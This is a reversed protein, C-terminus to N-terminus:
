RSLLITVNNKKDEIPANHINYKLFVRCIYLYVDTIKEFRYKTKVLLM